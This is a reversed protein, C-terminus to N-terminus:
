AENTLDILEWPGFRVPADDEGTLDIVDAFYYQHSRVDILLFPCFQGLKVRKRAPEPSELVRKRRGLQELTARYPFAEPPPSPSPPIPPVCRQKPPAKGGTSIHGGSRLKPIPSRLIQKSPAKGGTSLRGGSRPRPTPAKQKRSAKGGTSMRGTRMIPIPSWGGDDEEDDSPNLLTQSSSPPPSSPPSSPPLSSPFRSPLNPSPPPTAPMMGAAPVVGTAAYHQLNEKALERRAQLLGMVEEEAAPSTENNAMEKGSLNYMAKLIHFEHMVGDPLPETVHEGSHSHRRTVCRQFVRSIDSFNKGKGRNVWQKLYCTDRRFNRPKQIACREALIEVDRQLGERFAKALCQPFLLYPDPSTLLLLPTPTTNVFRFEARRKDTLEGM